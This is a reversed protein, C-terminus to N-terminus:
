FDLGPLRVDSRGNVAASARNIVAAPLYKLQSLDIPYQPLYRELMQFMMIAQELDRQKKVPERDAQQSLWAKHIAFARPDPVAMPIPLGNTAIAVTEVKPSNALWQLSPVEVAALDDPSFRVPDGSRMDMPPVILDVMFGDKNVARFGQARIPEFSKDVKRLLGILGGEDLRRVVISLQKRPDYLMDVDGSALLEMRCQVAAMSEYAFLAHTGVIRFESGVGASDMGLLIEGVISPLRGLRAARNLRAQDKLREGLGVLREKVREKGAMFAEYKAETDPSRVGLSRGNGKADHLRVLYDKEKSKMWKMGYRYSVAQRTADRWAEYLQGSEVLFLRQQDNLPIM